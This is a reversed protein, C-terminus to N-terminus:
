ETEGEAAVPPMSVIDLAGWQEAMAAAIGPFTISRLHSREAKNKSSGLKVHWVSMTKGSKTTHIDFPVINTPRLKPLGKLWLCTAKRANHGYEYPQIIQDPKRYITSMRGIPNEVSVLPLPADALAIFFEAADMMKEARGPFRDKYKEGFWKNGACTLYTCPPHFIGLDFRERQLVEFIDEQFHWEPHGGECPLIDCSYAEHGRERFALTVVQSFECGVIVRM